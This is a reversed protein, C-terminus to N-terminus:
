DTQIKNKIQKAKLYVLVALLARTILVTFAVGTAGYLYVLPFSIAFGLLSAMININRILRDYHLVILYNTGYVNQISTFIMSIGLLRLLFIADEFEGTTFIHILKPAFVILFIAGLACLSINAVAFVHHKDIRRALFPFFARSIVGILQTMIANFKDAAAYIGCAVPGQWAMLLIQSFSNYIQPLITNIFIDFGSKITAIIESISTWHWKYGWKRCILWMSVAGSILYGLATLVPQLIYDQKEKIFVFVLVTFVFKFVFNMLTVYRMKELGQFFWDPFFIHGPLMLYTLLLILASTRFSTLTAILALLIFLCFIVLVIRSNMVNSFIHSVMIQNDRNQAVDRVATFQFGWDVVTSFYSVVTTAFAILGFGEAGIVKTLYPFTILPFVYGCVQLLSLWFMNEVVTKADKSKRVKLIVSRINM